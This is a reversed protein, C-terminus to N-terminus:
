GVKLEHTRGEANQQWHQKWPRQQLSDANKIVGHSLQGLAESCGGGDGAQNNLAADEATPM